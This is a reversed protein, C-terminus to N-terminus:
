GTSGILCMGTGYDLYCAYDNRVNIGDTRYAHGCQCHEASENGTHASAAGAKNLM